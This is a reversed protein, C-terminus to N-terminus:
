PSGKRRGRRKLFPNSTVIKVVLTSFKYGNQSLAHVTQELTPEDYYELERGLASALMKETFCRIFEHKRPGRLIAKLQRPGEFKQGGPLIGSPDIPFTGDTSRWRGIADFNEFAFGLADMKTHCLACSPNRRHQEMRERFSGSAVAQEQDDLESVGPPPPPPPTGLITEMIWKGRKVPSSRDPNSTLTLVSAQMLLGGRLTEGLAVRRFEDGEVGAIGYHRALRGNLFTFDADILELLSRDERVIATFFMQTETRMADRLADDFEPFRRKDPEASQLKPLQLWQGAFHETFARAKRDKLMRLSQAQLNSRLTGTRAHQTLEEDPMSSWLFYSMRTALEFENLARIAKPDNPHPDLEVKFLFHPSVLIAKLAAGIGAEFSSSEQYVDEVIQLLRSVDSETAPRRYARSALNTLIKRATEPWMRKGDPLAVFIRRYAELNKPKGESVAVAQKSIQEAAAVYKEMQIPALSLAAGTAGVDDAPFKDATKFDIGLLDRITNQYEARNLRRITEHGPDPAGAYHIKALTDEIWRKTLDTEEKSPQKQDEPPMTGALLKDRIQKWRRRGTTAVESAHEFVDLALDGEPSDSSHCKFCYNKLFPRVKDHFVLDLKDAETPQAAPLERWEALVIRFGRTRYGYADISNDRYASRCSVADNAWSGGRFVRYSKGPEGPDELPSRQYYNLDYQDFCWESVNGHMDYLGFENPRYSGVTTPRGLYPGKEAGASPLNGNMNAQLSSLSDGFSFDTTKGARCAYEWQAETPLRYVRGAAKEDPFESLKRCFEVAKNGKARDVPFRSTDLGEVAAWGKGTNSDVPLQEITKSFYSPNDGMVQEYEAQTVEYIGMYFPKTLKVRHQPKEDDNAHQAADTSGMLFGAAPIEVLKMGILNTVVRGPKAPKGPKLEDGPCESLGVCAIVALACLVVFPFRPNPTAM